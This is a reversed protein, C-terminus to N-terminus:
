GRWYRPYVSGPRLNNFILGTGVIVLAGLLVPTGLFIWDPRTLLVLLPDAGAPPHDTRTFQMAVISLGVALAM